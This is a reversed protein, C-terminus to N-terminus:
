NGIKLIVVKCDKSEDYAITTLKDASFGGRVLLQWVKKARNESLLLMGSHSGMDASCAYEEIRYRSSEFKNYLDGLDKDAFQATNPIFYIAAKEPFAQKELLCQGFLILALMGAIFVWFRPQKLFNRTEDQSEKCKELYWDKLDRITM